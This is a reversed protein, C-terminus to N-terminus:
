KFAVSWDVQGTAILHDLVVAAQVPTACYPGAGLLGPRPTFLSDAQDDKLGMVEAVMGATEGGFDGYPLDFFLAAAHGGLCMATGCWDRMDFREVPLRAIHDRLSILNDRVTSPAIPAESDFPM